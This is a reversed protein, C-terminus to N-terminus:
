TVSYHQNFRPERWLETTMIESLHDVADWVDVYRVYLPAFGYRMTTPARFDGIVKRNIMAQVIAYGCEHNFSVHSGRCATDRPSALKFGQGGCRQEVLRIFLDCLAMSKRRVAEMNARLFIDVGIEAVMLSLIPQTGCLMQRIDPAPEYDRIFAFPAAHGWWGTLPQHAIGHHRRACFIFAPSGPGGNLYKYTCGVAFDVNCRNLDVPLAGASHCLDWVVIIGKAQAAETIAAMDLIRGSKYHVQTLCLVAVNENLASIIDEEEVFLIERRDGTQAVLGQAVYNDTPFNSGEMVILCRKPRLGVAAHLVKYLNIGTCDTVVVEGSEAGILRAIKDGLARPRQFWGAKNWSAILDEGWQQEVVQRARLAAAKPMAGLSHGDLYILGDALRFEERFGSLPDASDLAACDSRSTAALCQERM